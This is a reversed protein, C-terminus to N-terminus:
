FKYVWTFLPYFLFFFPIPFANTLIGQFFYYQYLLHPSKREEQMFIFSSHLVDLNWLLFGWTCSKSLSQLDQDQLIAGIIVILLFVVYDQQSPTEAWGLPGGLLCSLSSSSWCGIADSCCSWHDQAPQLPVGPGMPLTPPVLLAPCPWLTM